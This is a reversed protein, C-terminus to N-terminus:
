VGELARIAAAVEGRAFSDMGVAVGLVEWLLPNDIVETGVQWVYQEILSDVPGRFPPNRADLIRLVRNHFGAHHAFLLAGESMEALSEDYRNAELLAENILMRLPWPTPNAAKAAELHRLAEDPPQSPERLLLTGLALQPHYAAPDLAVMTRLARELKPRDEPDEFLANVLHIHDSGQVERLAGMIDDVPTRERDLLAARLRTRATDPEVDIAVRLPKEYPRRLARRLLAWQELAAAIEKELDPDNMRRAKDRVSDAAKRVDLNMLDVDLFRQLLERYAEEAIELDGQGYADSWNVSALMFIEDLRALLATLEKLRSVEPGFEGDIETTLLSEARAVAERATEWTALDAQGKQRAESHRERAIVLAKQIAQRSDALRSQRGREIRSYGVVAILLVVLVSAALGFRLRTKAARIELARAREERSALYASIEAAVVGADKPRDPADSALCRKTLGVLAAGAGCADLRAMADELHAKKAKRYVDDPGDGVYPPKGTLIECLIAGLGFVDLREDLDNVNGRAQEPPMYAPTGMVSGALSESGSSSSRLTKVVNTPDPTKTGRRDDAAGGESLVKALGWDMVQVEGFAGVMVNSPKLDRHIVGRAHAYALTQAIQELIGLFRQREISPDRREALLASLTRGKVLKMTFYPRDGGFLGMEHIPCIGPHQLQGGIQAEEVFRRVLEPNTEHGDLLVKLAVDRGLDVDHARYIAGVGGRGIEGVVRYRGIQAPLAPAERTRGRM